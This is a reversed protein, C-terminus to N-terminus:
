KYFFSNFYAFVTVAAGIGMSLILTAFITFGPTKLLARAGIRTDRLFQDLWSWIWVERVDEMTVLTNGLARRSHLAADDSHMGARELEDQKMARHFELEDTLEQERQRHRAWYAVRRLLKLM